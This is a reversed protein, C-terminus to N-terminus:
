SLFLYPKWGEQMSGVYDRIFMVYSPRFPTRKLPMRAEDPTRDGKRNNCTICAAVLNDWTDRGGRSKPMVHDVTLHRRSGCYQCTQKDRRLINKRSLMVRKYPVTVFAKLRIISPWPVRTSPSRVFRDPLAEVLEAKRLMILIVARQVNCVTLASYDQNLLLVHGTM